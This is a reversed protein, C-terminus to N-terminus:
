AIVFSVFFYFISICSNEGYGGETEGVCLLQSVVFSFIFIENECQNHKM